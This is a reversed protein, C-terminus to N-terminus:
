RRPPGARDTATVTITAVGERLAEVVLEDGVM